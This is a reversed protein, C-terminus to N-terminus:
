DGCPIAFTVTDGYVSTLYENTNSGYYKKHNVDVEDAVADQYVTLGTNGIAIMDSKDSDFTVSTDETNEIAFRELDVTVVRNVNKYKLVDNDTYFAIGDDAIVLKKPKIAVFKSPGYFQSTSLSEFSNPSYIETSFWVKDADVYWRNTCDEDNYLPKNIENVSDWVYTSLKVGSFSDNDIAGALGLIKIAGTSTNYRIVAGRSNFDENERLLIYLMGDQCLLDTVKANNSFGYGDWGFLVEKVSSITFYGPVSEEEVAKSLDFINLKKNFVTYVIGNSVAFPEGGNFGTASYSYYESDSADNSSILNPYKRVRFDGTSVSIYLINTTKDVALYPNVDQLDSELSIGGEPFDPKNSIINQAGGVTYFYGDKDFCFIPKAGPFMEDEDSVSSSSSISDFTKYRLFGYDDKGFLVYNSDSVPEAGYDSLLDPSLVFVGDILYPVNGFWTDTTLGPYIMIAESCTYLTNGKNDEFIIKATYMGIPINSASLSAKGDTFIKPSITVPTTESSLTLTLIASVQYVNEADSEIPLNLSGTPAAENPNYGLNNARVNPCFTFSKNADEATISFSSNYYMFVAATDAPLTEKTYSGAFGNITLTWTGAQPLSLTFSNNDTIVTRSWNESDFNNSEIANDMLEQNYASISWTYDSEFSSTAARAPLAGPMKIEGKVSIGSEATTEVPEPATEAKNEPSESLTNGCSALALILSISAFVLGSKRLINIHKM